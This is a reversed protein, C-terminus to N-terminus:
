PLPLVARFAESQKNPNLGTGVVVVRIRGGRRFM